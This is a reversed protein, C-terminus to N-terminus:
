FFIELLTVVQTVVELAECGDRGGPEERHVPGQDRRDHGVSDGIDYDQRM